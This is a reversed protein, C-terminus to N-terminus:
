TFNYRVENIGPLCGFQQALSTSPRRDDICTSECALGKLKSTPQKTSVQEMPAEMSTSPLMIGSTIRAGEEPVAVNTAEWDVDEM